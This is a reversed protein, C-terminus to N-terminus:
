QDKPRLFDIIMFIVVLAVLIMGMVKLFAWM